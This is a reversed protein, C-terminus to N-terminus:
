VHFIFICIVYRESKGNEVVSFFCVFKTYTIIYDMKKNNTWENLQNPQTVKLTIPMYLYCSNPMTFACLYIPFESAFGNLEQTNSLNSHLVAFTIVHKNNEYVINKKQKEEKIWRMIIKVKKSRKKRRYGIWLYSFSIFGACTLINLIFIKKQTSTFAITISNWNSVTKLCLHFPAFLTLSEMKNTTKGNINSYRHKKNNNEQQQM